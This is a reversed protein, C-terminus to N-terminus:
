KLRVVTVGAGGEQQQGERFEAVLPHGKLHGRVAKLLAGTGIGHIVAVENFGALFADNLFPELRSVAEDVRLGTIDLRSPVAREVAEARFAAAPGPPKGRAPSTETVPVELNMHGARVRLRGRKRDVSLVEADCGFSRLFVTDGENIEGIDLSPEEHFERLRDTVEKQTKELGKLAKRTKQRKVEELVGYAERKVALVIERAEKYADELARAKEREMGALKERLRKEQAEIAAKTRELEELAGEHARRKEKLDAVLNQFEVKISGILTKAFGVTEEPLGFREAMELAHSQGPEGAKLRYLPELTEMDFEMSANAMGESRHVFGMIDTLHTTALVLAGRNKLDRLVACGLAGGEQPDTGTGLEDLLVLTRDDARRLIGSINSIHASFTSLSNEISQEDGIDALVGRVMPFSSASAPVPIGSLAMLLLLGVTKIAITKGGANPGTIVMVRDKPDLNLDLPVVVGKTFLMLLPHRAGELRILSSDNIDPVRMGLEDAFGAISRLVDLYVVVRHQAEIDDARARIGRCIERLIRIEEAKEEAVLNELENALGIIELPEVFATEGSRSVDHVVGRVQGKADMRVPIVWRGSRKTVFEDQLFPTLERSRTLEELRKRIRGDLGRIRVRLDSLVYSATDLINGESDISREISGLLEPFGTLGETLKKLLPLDEQGELQTLVADIIMLVPVFAYLEVPELVADEPRVRTIVESLDEFRRVALPTGESSLRRVEQVQGLRKEIEEKSELPHVDLVARRSVDSMARDSVIQLVKEFELVQLAERRVM